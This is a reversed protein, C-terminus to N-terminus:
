QYPDIAIYNNLLCSLIADPTSGIYCWYTGATVLPKTGGVVLAYSLGVYEYKCGSRGLVLERPDHM